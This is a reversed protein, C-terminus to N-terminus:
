NIFNRARDQIARLSSNSNTSANGMMGGAHLNSGRLLRAIKITNKILEGASAGKAMRAFAKKAEEPFGEESAMAVLQTKDEEDIKTEADVTKEVIEKVGESVIEAQAEEVNHETLVKKVEGKAAEGAGEAKANDVLEEKAELAAVRRRLNLIVNSANDM